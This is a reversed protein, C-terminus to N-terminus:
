ASEGGVVPLGAARDHRGARGSMALPWRGAGVDASLGDHHHPRERSWPVHLINHFARNLAKYRDDLKDLADIAEKFGHVQGFWGGLSRLSSQDALVANAVLRSFGIDNGGVSLLILDIKRAKDADCKKLVLGGQLEPVKGNMHYAEPYECRARSRKGCQVEAAASIQSHQPPNPVWEHGKYRLFLGLTTEAGSCSLGAYTVARHPEEVALQLAARLQHSYLSRHCAQDM